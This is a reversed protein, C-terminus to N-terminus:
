LRVEQDHEEPFVDCLLVGQVMHNLLLTLGTTSARIVRLRSVRLHDVDDDALEAGLEAGM